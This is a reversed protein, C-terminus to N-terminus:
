DKDTRGNLAERYKQRDIVAMADLIRYGELSLVPNKTLASTNCVTNSWIVSRIEHWKEAERLLDTYEELTITVEETLRDTPEIMLM